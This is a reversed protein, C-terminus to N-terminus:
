LKFLTKYNLCTAEAVEEISIHKIDAIKRAIYPVYCPQNIKGRFPVPALYPSDTEILIRELPSKKVVELLDEVKNNFTIIGSFSIYFGLDLAKKAMDWNETFCHMVGSVQNAQENILINITDTKAMRTHVILPKQVIKAINIQEIFSAQQLKNNIVVDETNTNNNHYYDLGTEGIAVVHPDAALQLLNEMMNPNNHLDIAHEPHLGISMKVMSFEETIKLLTAYQNPHTAVSLLDTVKNDLANKIIDSLDVGMKSLDLFHLHCHSDAFM